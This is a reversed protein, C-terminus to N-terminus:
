RLEPELLATYELVIGDGCKNSRSDAPFRRCISASDVDYQAAM